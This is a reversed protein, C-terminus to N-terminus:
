MGKMNERRWTEIARDTKDQGGRGYDTAYFGMCAYNVPTAHFVRRYVLGDKGVVHGIPADHISRQITIVQGTEENKYDYYPM